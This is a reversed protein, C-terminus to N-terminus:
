LFHHFTVQMSTFRTVGNISKEGKWQCVLCVFGTAITPIELRKEINNSCRMCCVICLHFHSHSTSLSLPYKRCSKVILFNKHSSVLTTKNQLYIFTRSYARFHKNNRQSSPTINLQFVIFISLFLSLMFVFVGYNKM